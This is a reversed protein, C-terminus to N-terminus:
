EEAEWFDWEAHDVRADFTDTTGGVPAGDPDPSTAIPMEVQQIHHLHTEPSIYTRHMKSENGKGNMGFAPQRSTSPHRQKMVPFPLVQHNVQVM